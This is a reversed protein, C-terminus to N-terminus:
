RVSPKGIFEFADASMDPEVSPRMVTVAIWLHSRGLCVQLCGLLYSGLVLTNTVCYACGCHNALHMAAAAAPLNHSLRHHIMSRNHSTSPGLETTHDHANLRIYTRFEDSSTANICCSYHLMFILMVHM